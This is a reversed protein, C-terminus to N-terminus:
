STHSKYEGLVQLDQAQDELAHYFDELSNLNEKLTIDTFFFYQFPNEPIPRSELKTMNIQFRKFISLCDLLAGPRHSTTFALTAKNFTNLSRHCIGKKLIVFRTINRAVKQIDKSLVKLGYHQACHISGIAALHAKMSESVHQCAGATDFYSIFNLSHKNLFDRCQALAIPHSYVEKIDALSSSPLALLHHEIPLYYEGVISVEKHYLLDLNIGVNGAISNEVPLIAYDVQDKLLAEITHESLDLGQTELSSSNKFYHQAALQSYAGDKGQYAVIM